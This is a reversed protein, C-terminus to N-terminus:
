VLNRHFGTKDAASDTDPKDSETQHSSRYLKQPVGDVRASMSERDTSSPSSDKLAGFREPVSGSCPHRVASSLGVAHPCQASFVM